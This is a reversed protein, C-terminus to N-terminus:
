AWRGHATAAWSLGTLSIANKDINYAEVIHDILAKVAYVQTNWIRNEACQPSLTVVRCPSTKDFYKPIGHVKVKEVDCGREGAGHLFVILPLSESSPDYNEPTSLYYPFTTGDPSTYSYAKQM